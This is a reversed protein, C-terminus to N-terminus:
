NNFFSQLIKKVQEIEINSILFIKKKSTFGSLLKIERGFLKSFSKILYKNVKGKEPIEPCMVLIQNNEFEIQFKKTNTKVFIKLLIGQKTELLEM